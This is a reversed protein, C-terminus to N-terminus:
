NAAPWLWAFTAATVLAYVLGDFAFKLTTVWSSGKWISDSVNSLAYGLLGVTAAIRFPVDGPAVALRGLYAVFVSVVVCLLFWQVLSRGMAPPGNPIVTLYGVPGLKFKEVMEPTCMDKMSQPCPFMYQGPKVGHERMVALAETEGDLKRWDGKHWPLAMHIVSSVIFVLAGSLVIPLWLETLFEM